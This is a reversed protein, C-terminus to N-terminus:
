VDDEEGTKSYYEYIDVDCGECESLIRVGNETSEVVIPEIWDDAHHDHEDTM